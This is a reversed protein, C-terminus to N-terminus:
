ILSAMPFNRTSVRLNSHQVDSMLEIGMSAAMDIANNAPKHEKEQTWRERDNCM